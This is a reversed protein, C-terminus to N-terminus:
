EKRISPLSRPNALSQLFPKDANRAAIAVHMGDNAFLKACSSGIGSGGGVILAVDQLSAHTDSQTMNQAKM